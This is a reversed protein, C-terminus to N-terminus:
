KNDDRNEQLAKKAGEIMGNIAGKTIKTIKASIEELRLKMNENLISSKEKANNLTEESEHKLMDVKQRLIEKAQNKIEAIKGKVENLDYDLPKERHTLNNVAEVMAIYMIELKELTKEVDAQVFTDTDAKANDLYNKLKKIKDQLYEELIEISSELVKQVDAHMEETKEKAALVAKEFIEKAQAVTLESDNLANDVEKKVVTKIKEEKNGGQQLILQIEKKINEQLVAIIKENKSNMENIVQEIHDKIDSNYEGAIEKLNEFSYSLKTELEKEKQELEIAIIRKQGNLQEIVAILDAQTANVIGQIIAKIYEKNALNIKKLEELSTVFIERINAKIKNADKNNREITENLIKEVFIRIEKTNLRNKKKLEEIKQSIKQKIDM